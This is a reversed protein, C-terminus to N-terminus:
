LFDRLQNVRTDLDDLQEKLDRMYTEGTLSRVLGSTRRLCCLLEPVTL